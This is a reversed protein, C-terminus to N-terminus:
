GGHSTRARAEALAVAVQQARALEAMPDPVPTVVRAGTARVEEELDDPLPSLGWVV